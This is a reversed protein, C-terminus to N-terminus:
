AFLHSLDEDSQIRANMLLTASVGQLGDLANEWDPEHFATRSIKYTKNDSTRVLFKIHAIHCHAAELKGFIRRITRIVAPRLPDTNRFEWTKEIWQLRELARSHLAPD